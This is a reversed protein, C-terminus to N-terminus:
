AREAQDTVQGSMVQRVVPVGAHEGIVQERSQVRPVLGSSPCVTEGITVEHPTANIM